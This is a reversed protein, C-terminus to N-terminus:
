QGNSADTDNEFREIAKILHLAQDGTWNELPEMPRVYPEYRGDVVLWQVEVYPRYADLPHHRLDLKQIDRLDCFLENVPGIWEQPLEFLQQEDAYQPFEKLFLNVTHPMM